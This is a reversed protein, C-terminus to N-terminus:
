RPESAIGAARPSARSGDRTMGLPRAAPLRLDVSARHWHRLDISPEVVPAAPAAVSTARVEDAPEPPTVDPAQPVPEVPSQEHVEATPAGDPPAPPESTAVVPATPEVGAEVDVVEPEPPWTPAPRTPPESRRRFWRM